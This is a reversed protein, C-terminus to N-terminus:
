ERGFGPYNNPICCPEHAAHVHGEVIALLQSTVPDRLKHSAM